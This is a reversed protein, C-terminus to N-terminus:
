LRLVISTSIPLDRLSSIWETFGLRIPWALGTLYELFVFDVLASSYCRLKVESRWVHMCMCYCVCTWVLSCVGVYVFSLFCYCSEYDMSSPVLYKRILKRHPSTVLGESVGLIQLHGLCAALLIFLGFVLVCSYPFSKQWCSTLTSPLRPHLISYLDSAM